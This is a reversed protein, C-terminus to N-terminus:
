LKYFVHLSIFPTSRFFLCSFEIKVEIFKTHKKSFNM